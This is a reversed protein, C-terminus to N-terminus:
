HISLLALATVQADSFGSSVLAAALEKAPRRNRRTRWVFDRLLERRPNSHIPATEALGIASKLRRSVLSFLSVEGDAEAAVYADAVAYWDDASLQPYDPRPHRM